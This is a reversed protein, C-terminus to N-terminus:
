FNLSCESLYNTGNYRFTCIDTKAATVTLTPTTGGKWLITGPWTVLRGGSGDQIVNLTYIRGAIPNVFTLTCTAASLTIKQYEGTNFDITKSAGCNGNNNFGLDFQGAGTLLASAGAGAGLGIRAFQPTSSTAIAQPTSLTISGAGNTVTIQNATGTLTALVFASGNGIPVQGNTPTSSSGTGGNAVPLIGSVHTTLGIKGWSPATTVGGSILANGTAVDSLKSLATAGSAYLIDGISYSSQGTGGNAAALVGSISGASLTGSSAATLRGKADVTISAFTYSGPTVATNALTTAVTGVTSTVDGTLAPMRAAAVTGSALNSANLNTLNVGSIAPLTAPFQANPLTGSSLDSASRTALDALSSGSKSVSAWTVNGSGNITITDPIDADVLARLGVPGTSGNPTALVQNATQGGAATVAITGNSTIPSGAVSLWSPVTLAVSTVTGANNLGPIATCNFYLTGNRNEFGDTCVTAPTSTRQLQLNVTPTATFLNIGTWTNARGLLRLVQTSLDQGWVPASAILASLLFAPILKKM